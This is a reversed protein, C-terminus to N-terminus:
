LGINRELLEIDVSIHSLYYRLGELHMNMRGLFYDPDDYASKYGGDSKPRSGLLRNNIQTLRLSLGEAWM